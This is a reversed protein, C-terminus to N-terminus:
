GKNIDESTGSNTKDIDEILRNALSTIGNIYWSYNGDSMSDSWDLSDKIEEFVMKYIKNKDM